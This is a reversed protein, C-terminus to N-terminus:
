IIVNDGFGFRKQLEQIRHYDSKTKGKKNILEIYDDFANQEEINEEYMENLREESEELWEDVSGGDKVFESIEKFLNDSGYLMSNLEIVGAQHLEETKDYIEFVKKFEPITLKTGITKEFKRKSEERGKATSTKLNLFEQAIQFERYLEAGTKNVISQTGAQMPQITKGTKDARNATKEAYVRLAGFDGWKEVGRLYRKHAVDIIQRAVQRQQKASLASFDDKSLALAQQTSMTLKPM